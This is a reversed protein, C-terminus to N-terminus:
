KELSCFVFLFSVFELEFTDCLEVRKVIEAFLECIEMKSLTTQRRAVNIINNPDLPGRAQNVQIQRVVLEDEDDDDDDGRM